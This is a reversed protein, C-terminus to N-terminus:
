KLKAKAAIITVIIAIYLLAFFIIKELFVISQYLHSLETVTTRRRM